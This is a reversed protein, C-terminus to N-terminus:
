QFAINGNKLEALYGVIQNNYKVILKKVEDIKM